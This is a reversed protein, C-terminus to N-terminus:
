TEKTSKENHDGDHLMFPSTNIVTIIIMQFRTIHNLEFDNAGLHLCM